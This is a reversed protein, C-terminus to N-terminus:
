LFTLFTRSDLKFLPFVNATADTLYVSHMTSQVTSSNFIISLFVLCSIVKFPANCGRESTSLSHYSSTPHWHLIHYSRFFVTQRLVQFPRNLYPTSHRLSFFPFCRIVSCFFVFNSPHLSLGSCPCYRDLVSSFPTVQQLHNCVPNTLFSAALMDETFVWFQSVGLILFAM